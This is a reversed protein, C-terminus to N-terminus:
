LGGQGSTNKSGFVALDKCVTGRNANGRYSIGLIERGVQIVNIAGSRERRVSVTDLSMRERLRAGCDVDNSERRIRLCDEGIRFRNGIRIDFFDPGSSFLRKDTPGIPSVSLPLVTAPSLAYGENRAPKQEQLPRFIASNLGFALRALQCEVNYIFSKPQSRPLYMLPLYM